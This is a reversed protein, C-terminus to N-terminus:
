YVETVQGSFRNSLFTADAFDTTGGTIRVWKDSPMKALYEDIDMVKPERNSLWTYVGQGGGVLLGIALLPPICGLRMARLNKRWSRAPCSFREFRPAIPDGGNCDIAHRRLRCKDM